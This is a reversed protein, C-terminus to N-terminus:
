PLNAGLIRRKEQATCDLEAGLAGAIVFHVLEADVGLLKLFPIAFALHPLTRRSIHWCPELSLLVLESSHPTRCIDYPPMTVLIGSRLSQKRLVHVLLDHQVTRSAVGTDDFAKLRPKIDSTIPDGAFWAIVHAEGPM